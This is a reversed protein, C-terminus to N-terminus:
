PLPKSLDVLPAVFVEPERERGFFLLLGGTLSLAAGAGTVAAGIPTLNEEIEQKKVGVALLALGPLIASAGLSFLTLGSYYGKKRKMKVEVFLDQDTLSVPVRVEGFGRSGVTVLHPGRFALFRYPVLKFCGGDLSVVADNPLAQVTVRLKDLPPRAANDALAINSIVVLLVFVTSQIINKMLAFKFRFRLGTCSM